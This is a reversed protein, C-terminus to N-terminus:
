KIMRREEQLNNKGSISNVILNAFWFLIFQINDTIYLGSKLERWAQKITKANQEKEKM